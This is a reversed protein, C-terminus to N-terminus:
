LCLTGMQQLADSKFKKDSLENLASFADPVNGLKLSNNFFCMWMADEMQTTASSNENAHLSVALLAARSLEVCVLPALYQM